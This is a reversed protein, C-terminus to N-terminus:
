RLCFSALSQFVFKTRPGGPPWPVILTVPKNPYAQAFASAAAALLASGMACRLLSRRALSRHTTM